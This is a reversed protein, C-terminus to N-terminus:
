GEDSPSEGSPKEDGEADGKAENNAEKEEAYEKKLKDIHKIFEDQDGKWLIYADFLRGILEFQNKLWGVNGMLQNIAQDRDKNTPKPQKNKSM